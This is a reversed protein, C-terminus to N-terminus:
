FSGGLNELTDIVVVCDKDVHQMVFRMQNEPLAICGGTFPKYPGFCHLFIASGAEPDCKDNYSINLCYQYQRTYEILHESNETDLDPYDKISVMENYHMGDKTDGSWYTDDDVKTYPIKCGPDDAIGFAANFKFTGVPTKADGEKTKGLGAKGIFGPSTMIMQWKGSSDKENLSVWATTGEYVAVVFLQKADKADPLKTIWEPSEDLMTTLAVDDAKAETVGSDASNSTNTNKGCGAFSLAMITATVICLLKKRM